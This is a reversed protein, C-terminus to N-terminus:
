DYYEPAHKMKSWQEMDHSLIVKGGTEREHAFLYTRGHDLEVQLGMMGASHGPLSICRVGPCVMYDGDILTYKDVPATIDRRMYLTHGNQDLQEFAYTLAATFEKEQVIVEAHPFLYLYGAHDVHMHSLIVTRIDEPKLGLLGLQYEYELTQEPKQYYPNIEKISEPWHESMGKPDCGLDYLIRGYGPVDILISDIPVDIMYTKAEPNSRTAKVTGPAVLNVDSKMIGLDLISFRIGYNSM